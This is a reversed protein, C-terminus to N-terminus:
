FVEWNFGLAVEAGTMMRTTEFFHSNYRLSFDAGLAGTIPVKLGLVLQWAFHTTWHDKRALTTEIAVNLGVNLGAYPSFGSPLFYYRPGLLLQGASLEHGPSTKAGDVYEVFGLKAMLSAHDSFFLEFSAQGGAASDYEKSLEGLPRLYFAELGVSADSAAALRPSALLLVAAIIPVRM